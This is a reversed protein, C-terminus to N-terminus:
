RGLPSGLVVGEKFCDEMMIYARRWNYKEEYFKNGTIYTYFINYISMCLM